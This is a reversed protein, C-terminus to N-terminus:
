ATIARWTRGRYQGLAALRVLFDLPEFCSTRRGDPVADEIRLAGTGTLAGGGREPGLEFLRRAGSRLRESRRLTGSSRRMPQGELYTLSRWVWELPGFRYYKLWIPSVILQFLWVSGVVYYLEYRELEGYLGFGFGYFVFACFILYAHVV